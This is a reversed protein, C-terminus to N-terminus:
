RKDTQREATKEAIKDIGVLRRARAATEPALAAMVAGFSQIPDAVTLEPKNKEIGKIVAAAVDKPYRKVPTPTKVGSDAQLGAEEIPGPFVVSVGVGTGRLDDRLAGAFGRLGFKTASYLSARPVPIKGAMSSIFVLHGRGREVMGPMLARTLHVGSRLNVDLVRDIDGHSYTELKGTGPLGANHILIDVAGIQQVLAAVDEPTALDAVFAEGPLQELAERNRGTLLLHAGREDLALAIARGLGGSAGTLLVRSGAIQM